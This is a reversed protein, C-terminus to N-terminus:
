QEMAQLTTLNIAYYINMYIYIYIRIHTYPCSLDDEEADADDDYLHEYTDM